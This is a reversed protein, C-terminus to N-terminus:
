PLPNIYTNCSSVTAGTLDTWPEDTALSTNPITDGCNALWVKTPRIAGGFQGYGYNTDYWQQTAQQAAQADQLTDAYQTICFLIAYSLGEPGGTFTTVTFGNLPVAAPFEAFFFIGGFVVYKRDALCAQETAASVQANPRSDKCTRLRVCCGCTICCPCGSFLVM